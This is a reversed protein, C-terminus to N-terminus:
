MFQAYAHMSSMYRERRLNGPNFGHKVPLVTMGAEKKEQQSGDGM